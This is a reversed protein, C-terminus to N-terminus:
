MGQDARWNDAGHLKEGRAEADGEMPFPVGGAQTRDGVAFPPTLQRYLDRAADSNGGRRLLLLLLPHSPMSSTSPPNSLFSREGGSGNYLLARDAQSGGDNDRIALAAVAAGSEGGGRIREARAAHN